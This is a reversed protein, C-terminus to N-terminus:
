AANYCRRYLLDATTAANVMCMSCTREDTFLHVAIRSVVAVDCGAALVQDSKIRKAPKSQRKADILPRKRETCVVRSILLRQQQTLHLFQRKLESNSM